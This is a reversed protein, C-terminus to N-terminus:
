VYQCVRERCSARGIKARPEAKLQRVAICGLLRHGSVVPFLDHHHEYVYDQVFRDLPLDPPVAVADPTQFRRVPQGEFLGRSLLTQYTTAAAGRVSLGIRLWWM